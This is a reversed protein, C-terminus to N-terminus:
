LVERDKDFKTKTIKAALRASIITEIIGIIAVVLSITFLSKVILVFNHFSNIKINTFFSFDVLSFSLNPFKTVLLLM